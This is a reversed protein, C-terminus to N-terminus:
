YSPFFIPFLWYDYDLANYGTNAISHVTFFIYAFKTNCVFYIVRSTFSFLSIVRTKKQSVEASFISIENLVVFLRKKHMNMWSKKKLFSESAKKRLYVSKTVDPSHLACEYIRRCWWKRFAEEKRLENRWRTEREKSKHRKILLGMLGYLWLWRSDNRLMSKKERKSSSSSSRRRREAIRTNECAWVGWFIFTCLTSFVFRLLLQITKMKM